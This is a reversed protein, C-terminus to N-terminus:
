TFKKILQEHIPKDCTLRSALAEFLEEISDIIDNAVYIFSIHFVIRTECM